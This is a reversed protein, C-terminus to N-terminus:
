IACTNGMCEQAQLVCPETWNGMPACCAEIEFCVCAQVDGNDCGPGPHQFCCDSPPTCPSHCQDVAIATCGPHWGFQCCSADEACVCEEVYDLACGPDFAPECCQATMIGCEGLDLLQVLEVCAQDWGLDCCAPRVACVTAEIGPQPECGLAESPDCCDQKPPPEGTSGEVGTTESTNGTTLTPGEDSSSTGPEASTASASGTVPGDAGDTRTAEGEEGPGANTSGQGGDDDGGFAGNPRTCGVLLLLSGVWALRRM